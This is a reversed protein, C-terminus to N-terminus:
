SEELEKKADNLPNTHKSHATKCSPGLANDITLEYVDKGSAKIFGYVILQACITEAKLNEVLLDGNISFGREVQSQGQSLTFVFIIM